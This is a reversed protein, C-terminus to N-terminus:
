GLSVAHIGSRSFLCRNKADFGDTGPVEHEGGVHKSRRNGCDLNEIM